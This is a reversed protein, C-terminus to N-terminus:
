ADRACRFGAFIQRRQPYDWNRFSNRVVRPRTAWSGGRLVKYGGGFFVESYERYPYARFGPYPLFDSATWEWADGVLGLVGYGSAGAPFAGAPAPGFATQDVNTRSGSPGDDGWPYRRPGAGDPGWSAAKEWEAETPLRKGQWRAYADAEYWSVHMVPLRPDLSETREFSRVHGDATWYLPREIGETERWKWGEPSWCERRRYGGAEVFEVYDGNTVPTRDIEFTQLDAEYRPRENDYAFGEAGAGMVFPGAEVRVMEGRAARSRLPPLPRRDPRYVGADALALCQLMTENHQHEHQVVMDWVFGEDAAADARELVALARKRVSDLFQRAEPPGLYPLEGRRARPTEDADYVEMLDPRLPELGGTRCCLWLDEFAAIHGLDWVLPSMLPSHVRNLDDDTVPEVLALTRQRAEALLDAIREKLLPEAGGLPLTQALAPNV